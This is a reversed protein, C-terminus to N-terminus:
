MTGVSLTGVVLSAAADLHGRLLQGLIRVNPERLLTEHDGPVVHVDAGGSALRGWDLRPDFLPQDSANADSALFLTIRGPYADPRYTGELALAKDERAIASFDRNAALRVRLKNWKSRSSAMIAKKQEDLSLSFLHRIYSVPRGIARRLAGFMSPRPPDPDLLALLSIIEGAARLQRAIEFAVVGGLSHGGLYYPGDPQVSRIEEICQTAMQQIASAPDQIRELRKLDVKYFPQDSGLYRAIDFYGCICFFPRRSGGTNIGIISEADPAHPDDLLQAALDEVTSANFTWALPVTKRCKLEIEAAIQVAVLSDGGLDFFNDRIGVPRVNLFREWIAVIDKQLPTDPAVIEEDDRTAAPTPLSLRDVKGTATLPIRDLRVFASPVSHAPLKRSLFQRLERRSPTSAAKPVFYAVLRHEGPAAEKAAAVAHEILPHEVLAAEIEGLEVRVGRIKVQHDSRGLYQINGDPLLAGLDGTKYLRGPQAPHLFNPLFREATLQERHYYGHALTTGGIYIEGTQGDAVPKRQEDLIHIHAGTIPQGIPPLLPWSEPRGRLTFATVVHSEAPGYQNHLSCDRLSEFLAKVQPTIQLQEGATIVDRLKAPVIRETEFAKALQQLGVFPLFIREVEFDRMLRLLEAPERRQAESTLVLTGGAVLTAFIEQFAVDFNLSTFQLTRAAAPLTWNELQWDLLNCLVGQPMAVAKPTGTSGSTYILYALHEERVDTAPAKTSQRDIAKADTDLRVIQAGHGAPLKDELASHTVIVAPKSDQLMFALREDPHQPDLSVYGGGAKFVAVLAVVMEVSRQLCIGVLQDAQLGRSILHHALRNAQEELERYTITQEGHIVATAEPTRQVAAEVMSRINREAITVQDEGARSGPQETTILDIQRHNM